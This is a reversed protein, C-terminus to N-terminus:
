RQLQPSSPAHLERRPVGCPSWTSSWEPVVEIDHVYAAFTLEYQLNIIEYSQLTGLVGM